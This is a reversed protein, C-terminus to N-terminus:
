KDCVAGTGRGTGPWDAFLRQGFENIHRQGHYCGDDAVVGNGYGTATAGSADFYPGRPRGGDPKRPGSLREWRRRSARDLRGPLRVQMEVADLGRVDGGDEGPVGQRSRVYVPWVPQV